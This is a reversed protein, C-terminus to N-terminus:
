KNTFISAFNLFVEKRLADIELHKLIAAKNYVEQIYYSSTDTELFLRNIPVELFSNIVKQNDLLLDKGFSFYTHNFKLLQALQEKNGNFQHFIFPINYTKLYPIIDSFSKVAHIIVPKNIQHALNLQRDFVEKQLNFDIAKARDLGIEGVALVKNLTLLKNLNALVDNFQECFWPHVGISVNYTLSNIQVEDLFHFANRLVWEQSNQPKRHSHINIFHKETPYNM